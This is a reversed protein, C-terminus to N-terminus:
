AAACRAVTALTRTTVDKGFTRELVTMFVAGKPHPEYATFVEAATRTLVRVGDRELPLEVRPEEARRLFTVV